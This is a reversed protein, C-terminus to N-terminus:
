GGAFRREIGDLVTALGLEFEADPSTPPPLAGARPGDAARRRHAITVRAAHGLAYDDVIGTVARTAEADLRLAALAALSQEIHRLANPADNTRQGFADLVWPHAMLAATTRRAIV